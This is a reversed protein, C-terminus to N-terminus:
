AIQKLIANTMETHKKGHRWVTLHALEHAIVEILSDPSVMYDDQFEHRWCEDIFYCDITIYTDVGEGLQNQPDTTVCCGLANKSKGRYLDHDYPIIPVQYGTIAKAREVISYFWQLEAETLETPRDLYDSYTTVAKM